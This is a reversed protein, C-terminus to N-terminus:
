ELDALFCSIIKKLSEDNEEPKRIEHSENIEDSVPTYIFCTRPYPFFQSYITTTLLWRPNGHFNFHSDFRKKILAVANMFVKETRPRVIRIKYMCDDLRQHYRSIIGRVQDHLVVNEQPINLLFFDCELLLKNMFYKQWLNVLDTDSMTEFAGSQSIWRIYIYLSIPDNHNKDIWDIAVKQKDPKLKPIEQYFFNILTSYNGEKICPRFIEELVSHTMQLPNGNVIIYPNKFENSVKISSLCVGDKTLSDLNFLETNTVADSSLLGIMSQTWPYAAPPQEEAGQLQVALSCSLLILLYRNM